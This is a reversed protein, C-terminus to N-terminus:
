ECYERAQERLEPLPVRFNLIKRGNTVNGVYRCIETANMDDFIDLEPVEIKKPKVEVKVVPKTYSQHHQCYESGSNALRKCQTGSKTEGNCQTAM